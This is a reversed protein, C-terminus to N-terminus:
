SAKQQAHLNRARRRARKSPAFTCHGPMQKEMVGRCEVCVSMSGRLGDKAPTKEKAIFAAESTCRVLKKTSGGFRFPGYDPNPKEAQCQRHDPPTLKQSM